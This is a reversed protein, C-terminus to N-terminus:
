AVHGLQEMRRTVDDMDVEDKVHTVLARTGAIAIKLYLYNVTSISADGLGDKHATFTQIMRPTPKALMNGLGGRGNFSFEDTCIIGDLFLLISSKLEDCGSQLIETSQIQHTLQTAICKKTGEIDHIADVNHLFHHSRVPEFMEIGSGDPLLKASYKNKEADRFDFVAKYITLIDVVEAGRSDEVPVKNGRYVEIGPPNYKFLPKDLYIPM